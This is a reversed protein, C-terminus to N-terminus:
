ILLYPPKYPCQNRVMGSSLPLFELSPFLSGIVKDFGINIVIFSSVLFFAQCVPFVGSLSRYRVCAFAASRLRVSVITLM